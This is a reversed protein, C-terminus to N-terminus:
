LENCLYDRTQAVFDADEPPNLEADLEKAWKDNLKTLPRVYFCGIDRLPDMKAAELTIGFWDDPNIVVPAHKLLYEFCRAKIVPHPEVSITDAFSLVRECLEDCRKFSEDTRWLTVYQDTLERRKSEYDNELSYM